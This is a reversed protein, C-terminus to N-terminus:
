AWHSWVWRSPHVHKAEEKKNNQLGSKWKQTLFWLYVLEQAVKDAGHTNNAQWLKNLSDRERQEQYIEHRTRKYM